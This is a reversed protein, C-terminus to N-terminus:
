ACARDFMEAQCELLIRAVEIASEKFFEGEAIFEAFEIFLTDEMEQANKYSSADCQDKIKRVRATAETETM